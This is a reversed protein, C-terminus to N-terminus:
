PATPPPTPKHDMTPRSREDKGACSACVGRVEVHTSVVTGMQRVADPIGLADLNRARSTERSDANSASSTIITTWTPTSGYAREVHGLTTILGLDSLLWLTRYVTDLSVTPMRRQVGRHVTEADPHSHSSAIERFIGLRQPTLKIGAEQCAERLRAMRQQLSGSTM